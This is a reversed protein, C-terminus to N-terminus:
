DLLDEVTELFNRYRRVLFQGLETNNEIEQAMQHKDLMYTRDSRIGLKYDEDYTEIHKICLFNFDQSDLNKYYSFDQKGFSRVMKGVSKAAKHYQHMSVMGQVGRAVFVHKLIAESPRDFEVLPVSPIHMEERSALKVTTSGFLKICNANHMLTQYEAQQGESNAMNAFSIFKNKAKQFATGTNCKDQALARDFEADGGACYDNYKSKSSFNFNETYALVAAAKGESVMAPALNKGNQCALLHIIKGSVPGLHKPTSSTWIPKWTNCDYFTYADGHSSGIVLRTSSTILGDASSQNPYAKESVSYGAQRLM